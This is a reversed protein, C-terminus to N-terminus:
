NDMVDVIPPLEFNVAVAIFLPTRGDGSYNKVNIDAGRFLLLSVVEAIRKTVPKVALHLPTDGSINQLNVDAGHDLLSGVIDPNRALHLPSNGVSAERRNVDAGFQLLRCVIAARDFQSQCHLPTETTEVRVAIRVYANVDVDGRQLLTEAEELCTVVHM